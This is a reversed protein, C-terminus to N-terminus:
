QTVKRSRISAVAVPRLLSSRAEDAHAGDPAVRLYARFERDAGVPDGVDNKLLKAFAYRAAADDPAAATVRELDARAGATDGTVARLEAVLFRLHFDEPHADLYPQAYTIGARHHGATVCIRLLKPLVVTPDAGADLAAALYQEARTLDGVSAFATGRAVLKDATREARITSVDRAVRDGPHAGCASTGLIVLIALTKGTM